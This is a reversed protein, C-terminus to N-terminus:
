AAPVPDQEAHPSQVVLAGTYAPFLTDFAPVVFEIEQPFGVTPEQVPAHPPHVLLRSLLRPDYTLATAVAQVLLATVFLFQAVAFEHPLKFAAVFLQAAVHLVVGGTLVQPFM